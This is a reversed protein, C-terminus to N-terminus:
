VPTPQLANKDSCHSQRVASEGEFAAASSRRVGQDVNMQAVAVGIEDGDNHDTNLPHGAEMAGKVCYEVLPQWVKGTGVGIPGGQHHMGEVPKVYKEMGEPLESQFDELANMHSFVNEWRWWADGVIDAWSDFDCKPGRVWSSFNNASSGGLGRGRPYVITRDNLRSQQATNYLWNGAENGFKPVVLGPILNEPDDEAEGGAEVVLIKHRPSVPASALRSALLCGSTGGGIIIYDFSNRAVDDLTANPPM